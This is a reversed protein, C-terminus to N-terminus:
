GARATDDAADERAAQAKIADTTMRLIPADPALRIRPLGKKSSSPPAVVLERRLASTVLDRLTTGRQVAAIKASRLLDDPLDLTTRMCSHTEICVRM